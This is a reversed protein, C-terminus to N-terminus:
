KVTLTAVNSYSKQGNSDIVVCRFQWGNLGAIANVSLAVTKAGTQGSNSWDSSANKRSQWQYKLTGTGTARISFIATAGAKVSVNQPQAQINPVIWLSVVNSITQHNASDRVVCRFQWGNLGAIANISLTATKAGTQGSNSWSASSNKRSQWQYTLNGSGAASLSFKAVSGATAKQDTPQKTVAIAGVTLTAPNSGWRFGNGDTVVCRFQWGNLGAIANVSLTKTKAGPQGSNTWASDANKRSQWQYSLPAKGAASMTFQATQGPVTAVNAPQSTFKIRVTLTAEDSEVTRGNGDKIVCRFQWGDLGGSTAVSLAKTKAGTMGSNSWASTANKRSQWQYTLTGSGSAEVTFKATDGAQASQNAPQASITIPVVNLTAATSEAAEGKQDSVMCRFQWGNHSSNAAVSLTNTNAGSLNSNAWTGSVSSRQQWRYTLTGVGSAQVTFKVTSGTAANRDAPQALIVLNISLTVAKSTVQLGTAPDTIVCRFQYGNLQETAAVKLTDTKAGKQGSDAWSASSNKRYQWQYNLAGTGYAEVYFEATTGAAVGKNKPQTSITPPNPAETSNPEPASATMAMYVLNNNNIGTGDNGMYRLFPIMESDDPVNAYAYYTRTKGTPTYRHPYTDNIVCYWDTSVNGINLQMYSPSIARTGTNTISIYMLVGHEGDSPPNVNYVKRATLYANGGVIVKSVRISFPNIEVDGATNEDLIYGSITGWGDLPDEPSNFRAKQNSGSGTFTGGTGDYMYKGASVTPTMYFILVVLAIVLVAFTAVTSAMRFKQKKMRLLGGSNMWKRKHREIACM